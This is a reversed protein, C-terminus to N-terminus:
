VVNKVLKGISFGGALIISKGHPIQERANELIYNSTYNTVNAKNGIEKLFTHYNPVPRRAIIQYM